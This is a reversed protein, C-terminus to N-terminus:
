RASGTSQEQHEGQAGNRALGDRLDGASRDGSRDAIALAADDRTGDHGEDAGRAAGTQFDRGVLVAIEGKRDDPRLGVHEADPQRSELRQCPGADDHVGAVAHREADQRYFDPPDCLGHGDECARGLQLQRGSFPGEGYLSLGDLIDGDVPAPEEIERQERRPDHGGGSGAGRWTGLVRLAFPCRVLEFLTWISPTVSM